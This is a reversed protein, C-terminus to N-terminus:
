RWGNCNVATSEILEALGTTAEHLDLCNNLELFLITTGRKTGALRTSVTETSHKIIIPAQMTKMVILAGDPLENLDASFHPSNM